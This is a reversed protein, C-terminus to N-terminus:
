NTIQKIITDNLLKLKANELLGVVEHMKIHNTGTVLLTLTGNEDIAETITISNITTLNEM